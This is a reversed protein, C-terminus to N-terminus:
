IRGCGWRSASGARGWDRTRGVRIRTGAGGARHARNRRSRSSKRSNSKPLSSATTSRSTPSRASVSRSSAAHPTRASATSPPSSPSPASVSPPNSRKQLTSHPHPSTASLPFYSRAESIHGNDLFEDVQSVPTLASVRIPSPLPRVLGSIKVGIYPLKQVQKLSQIKEPYASHM